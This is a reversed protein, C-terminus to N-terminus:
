KSDNNKEAAIAIRIHRNVYPPTDNVDEPTHLLVCDYILPAFSSAGGGGTIRVISQIHKSGSAATNDHKTLPRYKLTLVRADIPCYLMRSRSVTLNCLIDTLEYPVVGSLYIKFPVYVKGM